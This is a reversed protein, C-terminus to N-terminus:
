ENVMDMFKKAEEELLFLTEGCKPCEYHGPDDIFMINTYDWTHTGSFDAQALGVYILKNIQKGCKPCLTM